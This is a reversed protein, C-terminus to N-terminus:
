QAKRILADAASAAEQTCILPNIEVEEVQEANALVYAQVADIAALLADLDVPPNGRFGELLPAINLDKLRATVETRTAPILLSARDRLVDTMTGGAGLTLVFGHAPDRTVGVLVEVLTGAVMREVLLPGDALRPAAVEVEARTTLGLALGNAGTKHALGLTKLAVPFGIDAAAQGATSRDTVVVSPPITLGHAALALKASQEDVLEADRDIGPLLVPEAPPAMPRSMVDLAELGHDLGHIAGVGHDMLTKATQEPLLEALSAVVAFPRGTRRTAEIAAQTVCEWDSADCLDARPYDSVLLTMAIEDDAMAAWAQTMAAQDRWIYTHYDLPNAMAVMPGLAASLDKAQRPNLPPFILGTGQATDAALAAEGGSCSISAIRNSSLPGFQHALKLSELFVPLSRARRIGLRQLFADAGTDSGTLSATHSVAAAQAQQSVGSKLAILTVGKTRAKQALAEWGRLNGFGEIHLGIATVREDDLLQLAIDTQATQAQNGCTLMYGIPLGRNQMTLNIAINSSQTLIAVGRQVRSCGHQDPWIACGDFANVFGYCNPGLIPMEGAAEILATQLDQAAADEAAAESFGSAFCIAGGAKLRRLQAVVDLTAHRNVGIFAADIPGPVEELSRLSKHGAIQKGTPHVPHLPGDFGIQKAASIISACWAGGGIVAISKPKLLRTLDRM